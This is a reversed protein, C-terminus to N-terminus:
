QVNPDAYGAERASHTLDGTSLYIEVFERQQATLPVLMEEYKIQLEAYEATALASLEQSRRRMKPRKIKTRPRKMTTSLLITTASHRCVPIHHDSHIVHQRHHLRVQA